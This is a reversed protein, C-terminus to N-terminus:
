VIYTPLIEQMGNGVSQWRYKARWVRVILELFSHLRTGGGGALRVALSHATRQGFRTAIPAEEVSMWVERRLGILDSSM